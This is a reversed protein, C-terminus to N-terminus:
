TSQPNSKTIRAFSHINKVILKIKRRMNWVKYEMNRFIYKMNYELFKRM